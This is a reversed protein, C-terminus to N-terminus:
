RRSQTTNLYRIWSNLMLRIEGIESFVHRGKKSLEQVLAPILVAGTDEKKVGLIRRWRATIECLLDRAQIAKKIADGKRQRQIKDMQYRDLYDGESEPLMYYLTNATDILICFQTTLEDLPYIYKERIHRACKGRVYLEDTWTSFDNARRLLLFGKEPQEGEM